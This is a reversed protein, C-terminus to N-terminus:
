KKGSSANVSQVAPVNNKTGFVIILIRARAVALSAPSAASGGPSRYVVRPLSEDGAHGGEEFHQPLAGCESTENIEGSQM